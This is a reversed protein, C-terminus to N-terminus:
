DNADVGSNYGIYFAARLWAEVKPELKTPLLSQQKDFDEIGDLFEEFSKYSELRPSADKGFYWADRFHRECDCFRDLRRGRSTGLFVENWWCEFTIYRRRQGYDNKRM